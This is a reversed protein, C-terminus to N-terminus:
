IHVCVVNWNNTNLGSIINGSNINVARESTNSWINFLHAFIWGHTNVLETKTIVSALSQIETLSPTRWTGASFGLATSNSCITQAAGWQASTTM